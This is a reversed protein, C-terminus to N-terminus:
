GAPVGGLLYEHFSDVENVLACLVVSIPSLDHVEVLCRSVQPLRPAADPLRLIVVYSDCYWRRSSTSYGHHSCDAIFILEESIINSGFALGGTICSHVIVKDIQILPPAQM